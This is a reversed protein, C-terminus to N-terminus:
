LDLGVLSLIDEFYNETVSNLVLFIIIFDEIGCFLKYSNDELFGLELSGELTDTFPFLILPPPTLYNLLHFESVNPHPFM